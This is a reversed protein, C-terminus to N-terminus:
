RKTIRETQQPEYGSFFQKLGQLVLELLCVAFTKGYLLVALEYNM